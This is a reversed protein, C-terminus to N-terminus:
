IAHRQALLKSLYPVVYCRTQLCRPVKKQIDQQPIGSSEVRSALSCGASFGLLELYYQTRVGWGPEPSLEMIIEVGIDGLWRIQNCSIGGIETANLDESDGGTVFKFGHSIVDLRM